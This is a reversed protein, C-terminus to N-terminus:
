SVALEEAATTKMAVGAFDSPHIEHASLGVAVPMAPECARIAKLSEVPAM